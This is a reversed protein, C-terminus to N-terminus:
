RAARVPIVNHPPACEIRDLIRGDPSLCVATLGGGRGCGTDITLSAPTEAWGRGSPDHGRVVRAFTEFGDDTLRDFGPAGWWFADRQDLLTRAPEVGCNVFLVGEPGTHAFRRIQNFWAQHGPTGQVAAKLRSTWRTLAVMGEEAAAFAQDADGGYAAITQGVGRRLMWTLLDKPKPAFHIQLLKSWMEEQAGRLFVIDNPVYLPPHALVLARFRMLEAITARVDGGGIMNGLYVLRDGSEFRAAIEDHLERLLGIEGFIAGIAWVRRAGTLDVHHDSAALTTPIM